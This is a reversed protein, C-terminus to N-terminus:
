EGGQEPAVGRNGPLLPVPRVAPAAPAPELPGLGAALLTPHLALSAPLTSFLLPRDPLLTCGEPGSALAEPGREGPGPPLLLLTSLLTGPSPLLDLAPLTIGLPLLPLPLLSAALLSPLSPGEPDGGCAPPHQGLAVSFPLTGLFLGPLLSGGLALAQEQGVFAVPKTAPPLPCGLVGGAGGEGNSGAGPAVAGKPVGPSAAAGPSSNHGSSKSQPSTGSTPESSAAPQGFLGLLQGSFDRGTPQLGTGPCPSGNTAPLSGLPLSSGAPGGGGPCGQTGLLSLLAALPQRTVPPHMGKPEPPVRHAAPDQPDPRWPCRAGRGPAREGVLSLLMGPSLPCPPLTSPVPAPDPSGLQAEAALSLLSSAPFPTSAPPLGLFGRGEPVDLPVPPNNSSQSTLADSVPSDVKGAQPASTTAPLCPGPGGLEPSEGTVRQSQAAWSSTRGPPRQSWTGEALPVAPSRPPTVADPPSLCLGFCPSAPPCSKPSGNARPISDHPQLFPPTILWTGTPASTVEPTKVGLPVRPFSGVTSPPPVGTSPTTALHGEASFLPSLGPGTGPRCPGPAGEMSHYLTAMAATKRRHNCLKTMDQQGKAGPAGRGAVAVVAGPDFNFVKHMNLPCELGCKCTGDALLYARTQELSTLVTGSPSIYCVSGDEVKREWGVPVPGASPRAPQDTGTCDDSSSM